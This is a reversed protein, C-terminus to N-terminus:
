RPNLPFYFKTRYKANKNDPFLSQDFSVLKLLEPTKVLIFM